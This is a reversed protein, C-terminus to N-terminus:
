LKLMALSWRSLVLYPIIMHHTDTHQQWSFLACRNVPVIGVQVFKCLSENICLSFCVYVDLATIRRCLERSTKSTKGVYLHCTNAWFLIIYMRNIRM